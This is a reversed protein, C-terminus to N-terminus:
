AKKQWVAAFFGDTGHRHPWLRLFRGDEGSCLGAAQEVHSDTLLHAVSLPQFDTHAVSFAAAVAEDEQPLPSCTAYVLRGGPKLLRAASALIRQQLESQAAV